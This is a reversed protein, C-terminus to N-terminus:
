VKLSEKFIKSIISSSASLLNNLFTTAVAWVIVIQIGCSSIMFSPYMCIKLYAATVNRKIPRANKLFNILDKYCGIVRGLNLLCQKILDTTVPDIQDYVTVRPWAEDATTM